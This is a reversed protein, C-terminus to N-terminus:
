ACASFTTRKQLLRTVTLLPDLLALIGKGLRADGVRAKHGVLHPQRQEYQGIVQAVEELM